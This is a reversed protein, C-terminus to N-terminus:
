QLELADACLWAGFQAGKWRLVTSVRHSVDLLLFASVLQHIIIRAQALAPLRYPLFLAEASLNLAEANIIRAQSHAPLRYPLYAEASLNHAENGCVLSGELAGPLFWSSLSSTSPSGVHLGKKPSTLRSLATAPRFVLRQAPHPVSSDTRAREGSCFRSTPARDSM